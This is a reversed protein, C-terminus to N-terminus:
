APEERGHDDERLYEPREGCLGCSGVPVGVALVWERCYYGIYTVIGLHDRLAKGRVSPDSM